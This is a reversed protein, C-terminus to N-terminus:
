IFQLVSRCVAFRNRENQVETQIESHIKQVSIIFNQTVSSSQDFSHSYIAKQSKLILVIINTHRIIIPFDWFLYRM